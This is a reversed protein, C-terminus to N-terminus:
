FGLRRKENHVSLKTARWTCLISHSEGPKLLRSRDVRPEEERREQRVDRNGYRLFHRKGSM